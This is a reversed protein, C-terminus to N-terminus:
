VTPQETFAWGSSLGIGAVARAEEPSEFVAVLGSVSQSEASLSPGHPTMQTSLPSLVSFSQALSLDATTMAEVIGLSQSNAFWRFHINVQKQQQSAKDRVIIGEVILEDGVIRATAQALSFQDLFSFDGPNVVTVTRPETVLTEGTLSTLRVQVTHSGAPLLGWNMITGWGSNETNFAPFQPFANRVDSRPSCCPVTGVHADDILLDVGSIKGDARSDFGWGQVVAVGSVPQNHEPNELTVLLPSPIACAENSYASAGAPNFARVRYCYTVGPAVSEDSYFSQNAELTVVLIFTGDTGIKREIEFGSENSASDIWNLRLGLAWAEGNGATCSILLFITFLLPRLIENRVQRPLRVM